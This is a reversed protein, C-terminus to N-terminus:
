RRWVRLDRAASSPRASCVGGRRWRRGSTSQHDAGSTPASCPRPATNCPGVTRGDRGRLRRRTRRHRRAGARRDPRRRDRGADSAGLGRPGALPRARPRRPEEGGLGSAASRAPRGSARTRSSASMAPARPNPTAFSGSETMLARVVAEFGGRRRVTRRAGLATRFRGRPARGSRRRPPRPVLRGDGARLRVGGLRLEGPGHRAPLREATPRRSRPIGLRRRNIMQAIDFLGADGPHRRQQDADTLNGFPPLGRRSFRTRPPSSRPGPMRGAATHTLRDM